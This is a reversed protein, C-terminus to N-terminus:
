SEGGDTEVTAIVESDFRGALFREIILAAEDEDTADVYITTTVACRTM